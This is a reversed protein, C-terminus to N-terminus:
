NLLILQVYLVTYCSGPFGYKSCFNALWCYPSDVEATHTHKRKHKPLKHKKSQTTPPPKRDNWEHLWLWLRLLQNSSLGVWKVRGKEAVHQGSTGSCSAARFAQIIDCGTGQTWPQWHKGAGLALSGTEVAILNGEERRAENLYDCGPTEGRQASYPFLSKHPLKTHLTYNSCCPLQALDLAQWAPTASADPWTNKRWKLPNITTNYFVNVRQPGTSNIISNRCAHKLFIYNHLLPILPM